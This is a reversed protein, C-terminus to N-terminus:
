GILKTSIWTVPCMIMFSEDTCIALHFASSSISPPWWQQQKISPLYPFIGDKIPPKSQRLDVPHTLLWAFFLTFSAHSLYVFSASSITPLLPPSPTLYLSLPLRLSVISLCRFTHHPSRSLSVEERGNEQCINPFHDSGLCHSHTLPPPPASQPPCVASLAMWVHSFISWAQKEPFRHLTYSASATHPEKM